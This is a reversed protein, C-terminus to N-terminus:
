FMVPLLDNSIKEPRKIDLYLCDESGSFFSSGDSGGLGSPEQVCFNEEKQKIYQSSKLARQAKWRLDGIPPVAYPIDDWNIVSNKIYGGSVGSSTKIINNGSIYISFLITFILVTFKFKM